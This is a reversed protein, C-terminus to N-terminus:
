LTNPLSIVNLTDYEAWCTVNTGNSPCTGNKCEGVTCTYNLHPNSFNLPPYTVNVCPMSDNQHEGCDLTCNVSLTRNDATKLVNYFCSSEYNYDETSNGSSNETGEDSSSSGLSGSSSEAGSFLQVAYAVAIVTICAKFAM